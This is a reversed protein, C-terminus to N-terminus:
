ITRLLFLFLCADLLFSILFLAYSDPFRIKAAIGPYAEEKGKHLCPPTVKIVIPSQASFVFLCTLMCSYTLRLIQHSLITQLITTQSHFHAKKAQSFNILTSPFQPM